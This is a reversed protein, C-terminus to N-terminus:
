WLQNFLFYVFLCSQLSDSSVVLIVKKEPSTLIVCLVTGCNLLSVNTFAAQQRLAYRPSGMISSISEYSM